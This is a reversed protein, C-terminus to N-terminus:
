LCSVQTDVLIPLLLSFYLKSVKTIFSQQLIQDLCCTESFVKTTNTWDLSPRNLVSWFILFPQLHLAVVQFPKRMKTDSKRWTDWFYKNFAFMIKGSHMLSQPAMHIHEGNILKVGRRNLFGKDILNHCDAVTWTMFRDDRTLSSKVTRKMEWCFIHCHVRSLAKFLLCLYSLIFLAVKVVLVNRSVGAYYLVSWLSSLFHWFTIDLRQNTAPSSTYWDFLYESSQM